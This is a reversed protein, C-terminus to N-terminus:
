YKATSVRKEEFAYGEELKGSIRLTIAEGYGARTVTTGALSIETAGANRLEAELSLRDPEALMGATEMKLIYKRAIQNVEAKANILRLSDMYAVVLFTMLLVCICAAMLEGVNGKEKKM